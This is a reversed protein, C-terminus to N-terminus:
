KVIDSLNVSAMRLGVLLTASQTGGSNGTACLRGHHRVQGELRPGTRPQMPTVSGDDVETM